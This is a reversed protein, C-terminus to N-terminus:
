NPTVLVADSPVTQKRKPLKKGNWHTVADRVYAMAQALTLDRHKRRLMKRVFYVHLSLEEHEVIDAGPPLLDLRSNTGHSWDMINIIQTQKQLLRGGPHYRLREPMELQRMHRDLQAPTLRRLEEASYDTVRHPKTANTDSRSIVLAADRNIPYLPPLDRWITSM